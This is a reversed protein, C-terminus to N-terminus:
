QVTQTSQLQPQHAPQQSLANPDMPKQIELPAGSKAASLIKNFLHTLDPPEMADLSGSRDKAENQIDPHCRLFRYEKGDPLKGIGIQLVEDFLYPLENGLRSGPMSPGYTIAGSLSDTILSQKATMVVHKGQIDRFAKLTMMMKEILEGYAQRPDKVQIKANSLVVEAIESSSDLYLTQFQRAEASTSAWLHAETLDDVTRIIIVPLDIDRLSLLGSEASLVIPAPATRALFTKGYGSKGYILAKVGHMVASQRSSVIQIAM